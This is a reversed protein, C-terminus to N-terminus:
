YIEPQYQHKHRTHGCQSCVYLDVTEKQEPFPDYPGRNPVTIIEERSYCWDHWLWRCMWPWQSRPLGRVATTESM